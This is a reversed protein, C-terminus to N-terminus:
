DKGANLGELAELAAKRINRNWFFRRSGMAKIRERAQSSAKGQAAIRINEGLIDNRIGFPNFIDFLIALADEQADADACLLLFAEQRLAADKAKLISLLFEKDREEIERMAQLIEV